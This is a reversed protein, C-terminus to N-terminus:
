FMTRKLKKSPKRDKWIRCTSIFVEAVDVDKVYYPVGGFRNFFWKDDMVEGDARCIRSAKHEDDSTLTYQLHDKAAYITAGHKIKITAQLKHGRWFTGTARRNGSPRSTYIFAATPKM